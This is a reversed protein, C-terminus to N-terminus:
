VLKGNQVIYIKQYKAQTSVLRSALGIRECLQLAWPKETIFSDPGAEVLYDRIRETAISGGLRATSELLVIEIPLSNEKTLETLRHAAALGAIGGGIVVIRKM